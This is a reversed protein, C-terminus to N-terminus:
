SATVRNRGQAKSRYLREDAVKIFEQEYDIHDSTREACGLSLTVIKSDRCKAAINENEITQRINEAIFKTEELSYGPLIVAFEEGGYRAFTIDDPLTQQILQALQTLLVDGELHGYFDNYKKFEDVDIIILGLYNNNQVATKFSSSLTENFKHRNFVGTLADLNVLRRLEQNADSLQSTRARVLDDLRKNMERLKDIHNVYNICLSLLVLLVNLMIMFGATPPFNIVGMGSLFDIILGVFLFLIGLLLPIALELKLKLAKFMIWINYIVFFIMFPFVSFFATQFFKPETFASLFTLSMLIIVNFYLIWKSFLQNYLQYVFVAFLSFAITTTIYEIRTATVYSMSFPLEHYLFPVAVVERVAVVVAFLGFTLFKKESQSMLGILITMLGVVLIVTAIFITMYREILFERKVSEWEGIVPAESFGGRIHDFSSLQIAIEVTPSSPIFPVIVTQLNSEHETANTGTKGVEKIKEGNIYITAASYVFPLEIGMQKEVMEEPIAAKKVFTGYTENELSLEEFEIPLSVEEGEYLSDSASTVFQEHYFIWGDEIEQTDSAAFATPTLWTISTLILAVVFIIKRRM